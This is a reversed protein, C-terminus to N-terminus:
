SKKCHMRQEHRHLETETLNILWGPVECPWFMNLHEKREHDRREKTYTYPM